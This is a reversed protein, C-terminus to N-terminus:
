PLLPLDNRSIMNLGSIESGANVCALVFVLLLPSPLKVFNFLNCLAKFVPQLMSGFELFGLNFGAASASKLFRKYKKCLTRSQLLGSYSLEM